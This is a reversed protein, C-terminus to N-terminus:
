EPLLRLCALRLRQHLVRSGARLLRRRGQELPSGDPISVYM